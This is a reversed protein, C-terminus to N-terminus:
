ALQNAYWARRYIGKLRPLWPHEELGARQMNRYLLPLLEFQGPPLDDIDVTGQWAAFATLAESQNQLAAQLLQM